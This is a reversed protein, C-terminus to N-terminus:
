GVLYEAEDDTLGYHLKAEGVLANDKRMLTRTLPIYEMKAVRKSVHLHRGMKEAISDEINRDGKTRGLAMFYGPFSYPAYNVKPPRHCNVGATMLTNAYRQFGWYQRNTIRGLFIDARSLSEFAGALSERDQYLKPMNEEVWWIVDKPQEGLDWTSAVVKGFDRGGFIISLAKYIDSGRDREFSLASLDGATISKKGSALVELDLIAARIDGQCGKAIAELASKECAVGEKECIESLYKVITQPLHRKLQIAKCKKKVSALRKSAFDSTTLVVPSKSEGILEGLAKMDKIADADEVLLMKEGGFLTKTNAADLAQGINEGDVRYIEFGREQATLEVLLTKGVGTAGHVILPEGGWGRMEDKAANGVYEDLSKPRHSLTWM